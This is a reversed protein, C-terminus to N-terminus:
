EFVSTESAERFGEPKRSGEEAHLFSWKKGDETQIGM